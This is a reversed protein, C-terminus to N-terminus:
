AASTPMEIFCRVLSLDTDRMPNLESIQEVSSEVVWIPAPVNRLTSTTFRMLGLFISLQQIMLFTAFVLGVILTLYKATDGFLMKLALRIM